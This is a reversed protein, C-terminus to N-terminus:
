KAVVTYWPYTDGDKIEAAELEYGDAIFVFQTYDELGGWDGNQEHKFPQYTPDGYFTTGEYVNVVGQVTQNYVDIPNSYVGNDMMINFSTNYLNLEGGCVVQIAHGKTEHGETVSDVVSVIDVNVLNLTPSDIAELCLADDHAGEKYHHGVRMFRGDKETTDTRNLTGNMITLTGVNVNIHQAQASLIYGNLDLVRVVDNNLATAADTEGLDIDNLLQIQVVEENRLLAAKLEEPTSVFIIPYTANVDYQDDFSDEEETLQAALLKLYIDDGIRLNQYENGASERMKLALTVTRIEGPNLNGSVTTSIDKLFETLTGKKNSDILQSGNEVKAAPDTYYVDIVDSLETIGGDTIFNLQYKLALNGKNEIKIHYVETFGPEWIDSKFIAGTSADTWQASDKAPVDKTGDAWEMSVLLTGSKIINSGSTVSDTLWAYTSGLFMSVCLFLAIASMLLAHTTRNLKIM